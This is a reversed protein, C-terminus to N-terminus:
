LLTQDVFLLEWPHHRQLIGLIGVQSKAADETLEPDEADCRGKLVPWYRQKPGLSACRCPAPPEAEKEAQPPRPPLDRTVSGCPKKGAGSSPTQRPTRCDAPASTPATHTDEATLATPQKVAFPFSRKEM